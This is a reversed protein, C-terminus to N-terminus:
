RPQWRAPWISVIGGITMLFAGFWIWNVGVKKAITVIPAAGARDQVNIFTDFWVGRFIAAESTIRANEALFTRDDISNAPDMLLARPHYLRTESLKVGRGEVEFATALSQFNEGAIWLRPRINITEGYLEKQDAGAYEFIREQTLLVSSGMGLFVTALGVHALAWGHKRLPFLEFVWAGNFQRAWALGTSLILWGGLVAMFAAALPLEAWIALISVVILLTSLTAGLVRHKKFGVVGWRTWVGLGMLAILAMSPYVFTPIYFRERVVYTDGGLVEIITPALTGALVASFLTMLFLNNLLLMGERNARLREQTQTIRSAGTAFAILGVASVIVLMLLLYLGRDPDAAFAHVSTLLGSRVVFTGFLVMLFTLVALLMAWGLLQKKVRVTQLSHVLATGLIWPLLALNEVPDWFWWGGWGLEYYAWFSGLAIGATLMTWSLLAWPRLWSAWDLDLNKRYLTAVAIAFTSASATYGLYLLPPHIVQGVDQLLVNLDGSGPPITGNGEFPNALGASFGYFLAVLFGMLLLALRHVEAPMGAPKVVMVALYACMIFQWLILSGEHNGWVGVIKYILPTALNTNQAVFKLDFNNLVLAAMLSILVLAYLLVLMRSISSQLSAAPGSPHALARLGVILNLVHLAGIIVFTFNGVESIM